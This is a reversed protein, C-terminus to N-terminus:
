ILAQFHSKTAELYILWWLVQMTLFYIVYTVVIVYLTKFLVKGNCAHLM